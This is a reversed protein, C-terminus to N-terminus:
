ATALVRAGTQSVCASGLMTTRTRACSCRTLNATPKGPTPGEAIDVYKSVFLRGRFYGAWGTDSEGHIGHGVTSSGWV